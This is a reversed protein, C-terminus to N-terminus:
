PGEGPKRYRTDFRVPPSDGVRDFCRAEQAPPMGSPLEEEQNAGVGGVMEAGPLSVPFEQPENM